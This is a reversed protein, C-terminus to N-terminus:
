IAVEDEQPTQTKSSRRGRSTPKKNQVSEPISGDKSVTTTISQLAIGITEAAREVLVTENFPLPALRAAQHLIQLAQDLQMPKPQEEQNTM